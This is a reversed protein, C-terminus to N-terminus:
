RPRRRSAIHQTRWLAPTTGSWRRFARTFASPDAYGLMDAIHRVDLSSDVLM